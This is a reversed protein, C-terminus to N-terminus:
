PAQDSTRKQHDNQVTGSRRPHHCPCPSQHLCPRLNQHLCPYLSQRRLNHHCPCPHLNPRCPRLCPCPLRSRRLHGTLRPMCTRGSSLITCLRRHNCAHECELRQCGVPLCPRRGVVLLLLDMCTRGAFQITGTRLHICTRGHAWRRCALPRAVLRGSTPRARGTRRSPLSTCTHLAICAHACGQGQCEKPLKLVLRSRRAM